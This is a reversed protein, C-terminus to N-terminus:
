GNQYHNVSHEILDFMMSSAGVYPIQHVNIQPNHKQWEEIDGPVDTQVHRGASLFYPVIFIDSAGKSVCDSLGDPILPEALELFCAEIIGYQDGMKEQLKKAIDKVEDNSAQRRSGHAVLLLAKM